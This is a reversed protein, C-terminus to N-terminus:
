GERRRQLVHADHHSGVDSERLDKPEDTDEEDWVALDGGEPPGKNEPGDGAETDSTAGVAEPCMTAVLCREGIASDDHKAVRDGVLTGNKVPRAIMARVVEVRLGNGVRMISNAPEPKRVHAPEVQLLIRPHRLGSALHIHVVELLIRKHHELVLVVRPPVEEPAEEHGAKDRLVSPTLRKPIAEENRAAQAIHPHQMACPHHVRSRM